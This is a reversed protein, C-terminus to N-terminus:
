MQTANREAIGPFIDIFREARQARSLAIREVTAQQAVYIWRGTAIRIRGHRTLHLKKSGFLIGLRVAVRAGRNIMNKLALTAGSDALPVQLPFFAVSEDHREPLPVRM